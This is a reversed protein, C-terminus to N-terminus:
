PHTLVVRGMVMYPNGMHFHAPLPFFKWIPVGRKRISYTGIQPNVYAKKELTITIKQVAAYTRDYSFLTRSTVFDELTPCRKTSCKTFTRSTVFDESSPCMKPGCKTLTQSTVFDESLPCMKPGCKTLTQSTFFDESLPCVKKSWIQNFESVHCLGGILPVNKQVM